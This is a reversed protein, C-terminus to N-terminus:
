SGVDTLSWFLKILNNLVIVIQKRELHQTVEIHFLRLHYLLDQHMFLTLCVLMALVHVHVHVLECFVCECLQGCIQKEAALFSNDSCPKTKTKLHKQYACFHDNNSIRHDLIAKGFVQEYKGHM